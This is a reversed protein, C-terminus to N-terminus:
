RPPNAQMIDLPFGGFLSISNISESKHYWKHRSFIQLFCLLDRGTFLYNESSFPFSGFLAYGKLGHFFLIRHCLFPSNSANEVFLISVKFKSRYHINKGTIMASFLHVGLKM